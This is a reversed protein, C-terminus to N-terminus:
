HNSRSMFLSAAAKSTIEPTTPKPRLAQLLCSAGAVVVAAFVVAGAGASAGAGAGAGAAVAVSSAAASAAAATVSATLSVPSAGTVAAGSVMLGPVCGM